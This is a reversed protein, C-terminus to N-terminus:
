GRERVAIDNAPICVTGQAPEDPVRNEFNDVIAWHGPEINEISYYHFVNNQGCKTGGFVFCM